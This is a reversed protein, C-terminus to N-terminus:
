GAQVALPLSVVVGVRVIEIEENSNVSGVNDSVSRAFSGDTLLPDM